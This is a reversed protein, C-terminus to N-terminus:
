DNFYFVQSYTIEREQKERERLSTLSAWINARHFYKRDDM